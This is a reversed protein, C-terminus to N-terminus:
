PSAPPVCPDSLQTTIACPPRAPLPEQSYSRSRGRTVDLVRRASYARRAMETRWDGDTSPLDIESFVLDLIGDLVEGKNAVHYYIAMPQVGLHQALSRITLSGAEGADAVAIVGELVRERSLPERTCIGTPTSYRSAPM